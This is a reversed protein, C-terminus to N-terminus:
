QPSIMGENVDNSAYAM